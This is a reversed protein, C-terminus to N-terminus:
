TPTDFRANSNSKMKFGIWARDHGLEPCQPEGTGEVPHGDGDIEPEVRWVPWKEDLFDFDGKIRTYLSNPHHPTGFFLYRDTLNSLEEWQNWIYEEYDSREALKQTEIDDGILEMAHNGTYDSGVSIMKVTPDGSDYDRKVTFETGRWLKDPDDHDVLHWTLPHNAILKRVERTQREAINQKGSVIICTYSPDLYIRWHVYRKNFWSKGSWRYAQIIKRPHDWYETVFDCWEYHATPTPRAFKHAEEMSLTGDALDEKQHKSLKALVNELEIWQRLSLKGAPLKFAM